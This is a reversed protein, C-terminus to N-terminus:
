KKTVKRHYEDATRLLEASGLRTVDTVMDGAAIRSIEEIRGTQDLADVITFTKENKETKTIKFHTDAMAALQTLHSVCLVQKEISVTYLKEAVRQAAIGSIGADVEDFILTDIDESRALVNKIALMIRSLEGGSAVKALPRPAEGLNASIFFEVNDAGDEALAKPTISVEMRVRAMSLQRLEACVAEGMREAAAKRAATLREALLTTKQLVIEKEALLREREEDSFEITRKQEICEDLHRLVNEVSGGYKRTLRHIVDLRNEIEDLEQPSFDNGDILARISQAIDEANYRLDNLRNSIDEIEASLNSIPNLSRAAEGALSAIGRFDDEGSYMYYANSLADVIREANACIQKRENLADDEGPELAASEIEDIRFNLMDLKSLKEAEDMDLHRLQTSIETLRAFCSRYEDHITENEGFNDLYSLHYAPDLLQQSDHQGHINVLMSGLKKLSAVPAPRGNIRCSNKGDAYIERQIFLEGDECDFGNENLWDRCANSLMDFLATVCAKQAGTRIVDRYTREGLIANISDIIISKGAGTEGTLVSMGPGFEIDCKEIVAINEIHLLRLM